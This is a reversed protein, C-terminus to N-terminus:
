ADVEAFAPILTSQALRRWAWAAAALVAISATLTPLDLAMIVMLLPKALLTLVLVLYGLATDVGGFLSAPGSSDVFAGWAGVAMLLVLLLAVGLMAGARRRRARESAIAAGAPPLHPLQAVIRIALLPPPPLESPEGHRTLLTRLLQDAHAEQAATLEDDNRHGM